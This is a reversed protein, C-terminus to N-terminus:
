REVVLIYSSRYKRFTMIVGELFKEGEYMKGDIEIGEKFLNGVYDITDQDQGDIVIDLDDEMTVIAADKIECNKVKKIIVKRPLGRINLSNVNEFITLEGNTLNQIEIGNLQQIEKLHKTLEEKINESDWLESNACIEIKIMFLERSLGNELM